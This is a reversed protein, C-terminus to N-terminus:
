SQTLLCCAAWGVKMPAVYIIKFASTDISGDEHRCPVRGLAPLPLQLTLLSPRTGAEQRHLVLAIRDVRASCLSLLYAATDSCRVAAGGM